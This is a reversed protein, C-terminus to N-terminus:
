PRREDCGRRDGTPMIETRLLLIQVLIRLIPVGDEADQGSVDQLRDGAVPRLLLAFPRRLGQRTVTGEPRQV